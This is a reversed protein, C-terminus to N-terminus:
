LSSLFSISISSGPISICNWFCWFSLLFAFTSSEVFVFGYIKVFLHVIVFINTNIIFMCNKDSAMGQLFGKISLKKDCLLKIFHKIKNDREQDWPHKPHLQNNPMKGHVLNFMNDAKRSEHLKLGVVFKFFHGKKVMSRNLGSHFSELSSVTRM